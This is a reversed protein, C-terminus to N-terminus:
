GVCLDYEPDLWDNDYNNDRSYIDDIRRCTDQYDRFTDEAKKIASLVRSSSKREESDELTDSYEAEEIEDAM